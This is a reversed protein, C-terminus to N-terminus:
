GAASMTRCRLGIRNGALNRVAKHRSNIGVVHGVADYAFDIREGRVGTISQLRDCDNLYALEIRNAKWKDHRSAIGSLRWRSIGKQKEAAPEFEIRTLLPTFLFVKDEVIEMLFFYGHEPVWAQSKKEFRIDKGQWFVVCSQANLIDEADFVIGANFDHYWGKGFGCDYESYSAYRRIFAFSLGGRESFSFDANAEGFEGNFPTICKGPGCNFQAASDVAPPAGRARSKWMMSTGTVTEPLSPLVNHCIRETSKKFEEIRQRVRQEVSEDKKGGNNRLEEKHKLYADEGVRHHARLEGLSREDRYSLEAWSFQSCFTIAVVVIFGLRM